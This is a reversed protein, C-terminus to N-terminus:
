RVSDLLFERGTVLVELSKLSGSVRVGFWKRKTLGETLKRDPTKELIFIFSEFDQLVDCFM